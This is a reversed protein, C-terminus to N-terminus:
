RKEQPYMVSADHGVWFCSLLDTYSIVAPDFEVLISETRGDGTCVSFYSAPNEQLSQQIQQMKEKDSEDDIYDDVTQALCMYGSTSSKVGTFKAFEEQPNWFCGMGFIAKSM